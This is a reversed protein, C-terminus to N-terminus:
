FLNSFARKAHRGPKPTVMVLLTGLALAIAAVVMMLHENRGTRATSASSGAGTAGAFNTGNTGGAVGPPLASPLNGAALTTVTSATASATTGAGTVTLSLAPSVTAPTNKARATLTSTGPLTTTPIVVLQTFAGSADTTATGLVSTGLLIEVPQNPPFGVGKVTISGGAPISTANSTITPSGSTATTGVGSGVVVTGRMQTPHINCFYTFTGAQPFGPSSVSGGPPMNGVNTATPTEFSVNHTTTTSANTFKVNDNVNVNKTAPDFSFDRATVTQEAASAPATLLMMSSMTLSLLVVAGALAKRM